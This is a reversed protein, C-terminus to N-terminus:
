NFVGLGGMCALIFFIFQALLGEGWLKKQLVKIEVLNMNKRYKESNMIRILKETTNTNWSFSKLAVFISGTGDLSIYYLDKYSIENGFYNLTGKVKNSDLNDPFEVSWLKFYNTDSVPSDNIMSNMSHLNSFTTFPIDSYDVLSNVSCLHSFTSDSGARNSKNNQKVM